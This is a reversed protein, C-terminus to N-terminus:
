DRLHSFSTLLEFDGVGVPLDVELNLLLDVLFRLLVFFLLLLLVESGDDFGSLDLKFNLLDALVVFGHEVAIELPLSASGDDEVVVSLFVHVRERKEVIRRKVIALGLSEESKSV